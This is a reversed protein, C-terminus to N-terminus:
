PAKQPMINGNNDYSDTATVKGKEDYVQWTGTKFGHTYNGSSQMSGDEYFFKGTGNFQGLEDLPLNAQLNGNSYYQAFFLRIRDYKASIIQRVNGASDKMIQTVISDKKTVYYDATFFDLSRYKKSWSTDSAKKVSDIMNYNIKMAGIASKNNSNCSYLMVIFLVRLCIKM